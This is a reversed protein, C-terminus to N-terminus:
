KSESIEFQTEIADQVIEFDALITDANTNAKSLNEPTMSAFRSLEKQLKKAMPFFTGATLGGSIAGGVIPVAKSVAKGVGDKTLKVGVWALVKKAINYIAYKSLPKAAVKAGIKTANAAALKALAATAANVGFMVGLFIMLVNQTADDLDIDKYGYIYALKQAIRFVHAYFQTLDAPITGIMAFGGPIGAATSLVTTRTAEANIAGLAIHNLVSMSVGANTTGNELADKLQLESIKGSLQSTLFADREVKCYPLKCAATFIDEIKISPTAKTKEM